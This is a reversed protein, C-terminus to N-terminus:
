SAFAPPARSKLNRSERRATFRQADTVQEWATLDPAILDPSQPVISVAGTVCIACVAQPGSANAEAGQALAHNHVALEVALAAVCFFLLALKLRHVSRM